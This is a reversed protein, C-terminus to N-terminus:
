VGGWRAGRERCGCVRQDTTAAKARGALPAEPREVAGLRQM